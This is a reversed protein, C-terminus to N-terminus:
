LSPVARLISKKVNEGGDKLLKGFIKVFPADGASKM